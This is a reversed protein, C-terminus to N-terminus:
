PERPLELLVDVPQGAIREPVTTAAEGVPLAHRVPREGLHHAHPAPDELVLLRRRRALLKPERELFVDEVGVLAGPDLRTEAVQEPELLARRAVLLVEERGPADEELAQRLVRRRNEHELVQLPRVGAEEVEELIQEVPGPAPREE